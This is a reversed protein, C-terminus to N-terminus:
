WVHEEEGMTRLRQPARRRTEVAARWVCCCAAGWVGLFVVQYHSPHGPVNAVGQPRFPFFFLRCALGLFLLSDPLRGARVEPRNPQRLWMALFNRRARVRLTACM